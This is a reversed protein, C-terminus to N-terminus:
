PTIQHTEVIANIIGSAYSSVNVQLQMAVPVSWYEGNADPDTITAVTYWPANPSSREQITIGATSGANSWVQVRVFSAKSINITQSAGTSSVGNLVVFASGTDAFSASCLAMAFIICLLKKM